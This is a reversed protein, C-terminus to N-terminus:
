NLDFMDLQQNFIKFLIKSGPIENKFKNIRVVNAKLVQFDTIFISEIKCYRSEITFLMVIKRKQKAKIVWVKM